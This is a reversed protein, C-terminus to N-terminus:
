IKKYRREFKQEISWRVIQLSLLQGEKKETLLSKLLLHFTLDFAFETIHFHLENTIQIYCTWCRDKVTM